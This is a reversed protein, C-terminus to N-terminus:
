ALDARIQRVAGSLVADADITQEVKRCAHLVTSHDRGGFYAGIQDLSLGTLQRALYMGVQRPLLVNRQRRRSQLQRAEVQFYGSVRLAIREVTPRTAEVQDHLHRAVAEVDVPDKRLRALQELQKVAGELQRGGGVLHKALWSLVDENLNLRRRQAHQELLSRRDRAQLPQLGIVLGAALRSALRHPFREGRQALHQPGVAATVLVMHGRVLRHDLVQVLEEWWCRPLHQLDEIILLDSDLADTITDDEGTDRRNKSLNGCELVEVVIASNHRTIERILATILHSKGSGAPGHLFLPNPLEGSTGQLAEAAEKVAFLAARNEPAEVFDAFSQHRQM